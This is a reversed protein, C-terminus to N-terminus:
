QYLNGYFPNMIQTYMHKHKYSCFLFYFCIILYKWVGNESFERKGVFYDTFVMLELCNYSFYWFVYHNDLYNALFLLEVVELIFSQNQFLFWPCCFIYSLYPLSDWDMEVNPRGKGNYYSRNKYSTSIGLIPMVKWQSM